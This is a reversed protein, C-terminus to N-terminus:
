SFEVTVQKAGQDVNVSTPFLGNEIKSQGYDEKINWDERNITLEFDEEKPDEDIDVVYEYTGSIQIKSVIPSMYKIGFERAEINLEWFVVAKAEAFDVDKPKPYIDVDVYSSAFSLEGATKSFVDKISYSKAQKL